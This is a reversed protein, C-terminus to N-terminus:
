APQLSELWVQPDFFERVHVVQDDRFRVLIVYTCAHDTLPNLRNM